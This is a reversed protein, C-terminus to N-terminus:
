PTTTITCPWNLTWSGQHHFDPHAAPHHLAWYSLSGDDLEIVASLGWATSAWTPEATIQASLLLKASSTSVTMEPAELAAGQLDREREAKFAYRAWQGSPSFNFEQYGAGQPAAVFAEFCTHQWLGDTQAPHAVPLPIRVRHLEGTAMFVLRVKSQAALVTPHVGIQLAIPCPTAPHCVLRLETPRPDAPQPPPCPTNMRGIRASRGGPDGESLPHRTGCVDQMQFRTKVGM